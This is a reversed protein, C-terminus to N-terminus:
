SGLYEEDGKFYRARNVDPNDKNQNQASDNPKIYGQKELYAEVWTVPNLLIWHCIQNSPEWVLRAEYGEPFERVLNGIHEIM